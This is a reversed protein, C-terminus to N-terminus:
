QLRVQLPELHAAVLPLPHEDEADVVPEKPLPIEFNNYLVKINNPSSIQLCEGRKRPTEGHPIKGYCDVHHFQCPWDRALSNDEVALVVLDPLQPFILRKGPLSSKL